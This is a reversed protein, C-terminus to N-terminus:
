TSEALFSLAEAGAIARNRALFMGDAHIGVLHAGDLTLVPSGSNGGLTTCDHYLM